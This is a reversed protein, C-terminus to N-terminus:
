IVGGRRQERLPETLSKFLVVVLHILFELGGAPEEIVEGSSLVFHKPLAPLKIGETSWKVVEFVDRTLMNHILSLSVEVVGSFVVTTLATGVFSPTPHCSGVPHLISLVPLGELLISLNIILKIEFHVFFLLEPDM